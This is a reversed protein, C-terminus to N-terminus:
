NSFKAGQPQKAWADLIGKKVEESMSSTIGTKIGAAIDRKMQADQLKGISGSAQVNEIATQMYASTPASSGVKSRIDSAVYNGLAAGGPLKNYKAQFELFAPLAESVMSDLGKQFTAKAGELIVDGILGGILALEETNGKTGQSIASGVIDGFRAFKNELQPLFNNSADLADKLGENFGTGFAVRLQTAAASLQNLKANTSASGKDIAKYFRGGESTASVFANKVMSVSIKGDEMDKKLDQMSRGTDRSIQELPNFGANVFQLVEQGMLRGAATTQAFALALSGFRESNGMSVDGLMRLSPTVDDLSTGFALMTKAANAYDSLSLASKKEEDRFTKMLEAATKASGTLVEFQIGLDEVDAAAKSSTIIFAAMAAGGAVGIGALSTAATTAVSGIASLSTKVNKITKDLHSANGKIDVTFGM